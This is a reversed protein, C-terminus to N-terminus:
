YKIIIESMCMYMYAICCTKFQNEHADRRYLRHQAGALNNGGLITLNLTLHPPPTLIPLWIDIEVLPTIIQCPTVSSIHMFVRM